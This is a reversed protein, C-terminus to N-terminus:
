REREGIGMGMAGLTKGSSAGFPTARSACSSRRRRLSPSRGPQICTVFVAGDDRTIMAHAAMGM